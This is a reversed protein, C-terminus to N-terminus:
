TNLVPNVNKVADPLLPVFVNAMKICLRAVESTALFDVDGTIHRVVIIGIGIFFAGEVLGLIGGGLRNLLKMGPIIAVVNFTASLLGFGWAVLWSILFYLLIFAIVDAVAGDGLTNGLPGYWRSALLAAVIFGVFSGITYIMGKHFGSLTALGLAIILVIEIM